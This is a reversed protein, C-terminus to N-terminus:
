LVNGGVIRQATLRLFTERAVTSSHHFIFSIQRSYLAVDFFGISYYEFWINKITEM